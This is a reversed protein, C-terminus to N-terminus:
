SPSRGRSRLRLKPTPAPEEPKESADRKLRRRRREETSDPAEKAAEAISKQGPKLETQLETRKGLPARNAGSAEKRTPAREPEEEKAGSSSAAEERQNPKLRLDQRREGSPNAAGERQCKPNQWYWSGDDDAARASDKKAETRHKAIADGYTDYGSADIWSAQGRSFDSGPRRRETEGSPQGQTRPQPLTGLKARLSTVEARLKANERSQRDLESAEGPAGNAILKKPGRNSQRYWQGTEPSWRFLARCGEDDYVLHTLSKSWACHGGAQSHDAVQCTWDSITSAKRRSPEAGGKGKGQGGM